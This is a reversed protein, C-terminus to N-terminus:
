NQQRERGPATRSVSGEGDKDWSKFVDEAGQSDAEDALIARLHDAVKL